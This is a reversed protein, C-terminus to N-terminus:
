TGTSIEPEGADETGYATRTVTDVPICYFRFLSLFPSLSLWLEKGLFQQVAWVQTQQWVKGLM